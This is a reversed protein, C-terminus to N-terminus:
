LEVIDKIFIGENNSENEPLPLPVPVYEPTPTPTPKYEYNPYYYEESKVSVLSLLKDCKLVDNYAEFVKDKKWAGQGFIADEISQCSQGTFKDFENDICHQRKLFNKDKAIDDFVPSFAAKDECKKEDDVKLCSSYDGVIKCWDVIRHDINFSNDDVSFATLNSGCGVIFLILFLYKM